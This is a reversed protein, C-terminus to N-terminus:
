ALDKYSATLYTEGPTLPELSAESLMHFLMLQSSLM